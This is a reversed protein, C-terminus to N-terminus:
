NSFNMLSSPTAYIAAQYKAYSHRWNKTKYCFINVFYNKDFKQKLIENTQNEV